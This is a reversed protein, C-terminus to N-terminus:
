RASSRSLWRKARSEARRLGECFTATATARSSMPNIHAIPQSTSRRCIVFAAQVDFFASCQLLALTAHPQYAALGDPSGRSNVKREPWSGFARKFLSGLASPDTDQPTARAVRGAFILRISQRSM